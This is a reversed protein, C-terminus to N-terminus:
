GKLHHCSSADRVDTAVRSRGSASSSPASTSEGRCSGTATMMLTESMLQLITRLSRTEWDLVLMDEIYDQLHEVVREQVPEPLSEMMKLITATAASVTIKEL